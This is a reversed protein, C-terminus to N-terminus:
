AQDSSLVELVSLVLNFCSLNRCLDLNVFEHIVFCLIDGFNGFNFLFIFYIFDFVFTSFNIYDDGANVFIIM